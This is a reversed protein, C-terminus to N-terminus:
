SDGDAFRGYSFISIISMYRFVIFTVSKSTPWIIIDKSIKQSLPIVM